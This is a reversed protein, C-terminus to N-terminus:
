IFKIQHVTFKIRDIEKIKRQSKKSWEQHIYIFASLVLWPIVLFSIAFCGGPLSFWLDFHWIVLDDNMPWPLVMLPRVKDVSTYSNFGWNDVVHLDM